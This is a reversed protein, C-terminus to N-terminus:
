RKAKFARIRQRIWRDLRKFLKRVFGKRFYIGWGLIQKNLRKIMEMM